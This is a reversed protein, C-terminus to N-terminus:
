QGGRSGWRGWSRLSRRRQDATSCISKVAWNCAETAGSTFYLDYEKGCGLLTLIENRCNELTAKAERGFFHSSSPNGQPAELFAKKATELVPTTAANDFNIM